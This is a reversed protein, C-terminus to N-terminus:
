ERPRRPVGRRDRKRLRARDRENEWRAVIFHVEDREGGDETEVRMPIIDQLDWEPGLALYQNAEADTRCYHVQSIRELGADQAPRRRRRRRKTPDIAEPQPGLSPNAPAPGSKTPAPGSAAGASGGAPKEAPTGAPRGTSAGRAQPAAQDGTPKPKKEPTPDNEKRETM